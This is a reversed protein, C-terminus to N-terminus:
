NKISNIDKLHIYEQDSRLDELASDNHIPSLPAPPPPSAQVMVFGM